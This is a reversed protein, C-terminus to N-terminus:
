LDFLLVGCEQCATRSDSKSSEWPWVKETLCTPMYRLPVSDACCPVGIQLSSLLGCVARTYSSTSLALFLMVRQRVVSPLLCELLLLIGQHNHLADAPHVRLRPRHIALWYRTESALPALVVIELCIAFFSSLDPMVPLCLRRPTDRPAAQNALLLWQRQLFRIARCYYATLRTTCSFIQLFSRKQQPRQDRHLPDTRRTRQRDLHRSARCAQGLYAKRHIISM